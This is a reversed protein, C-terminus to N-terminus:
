PKETCVHILADTAAIEKVIDAPIYHENGAYDGLNDNYFSIVKRAFVAYVFKTQMIPDTHSVIEKFNPNGKFADVYVKEWDTATTNAYKYEITVKVSGVMHVAGILKEIAQLKDGNASEISFKYGDATDELDSITLEKDECFLNYVKRYYGIWPASVNVNQMTNGGKNLFININDIPINIQNIKDCKELSAFM